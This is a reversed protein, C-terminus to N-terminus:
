APYPQKTLWSRFFPGLDRGAHQEALAIFDETSVNGGENDAVWERVLAFFAEDGLERRLAHLTAAGRYYVAFSFLDDVGPDFIPGDATEPDDAVSAAEADIDFGDETRERWLWEAYTAFGENLWLDEWAEPTVSDGFWQHALEHVRFDESLVDTGYIPRNQTELAFGVEDPVVIAGFSDFPYPGFLQELTSVMLGMDDFQEALEPEDAPFFSILPLGDPGEAEVLDLEGIAVTALYTAMPQEVAWQWTATSGDDDNAVLVGNSAAALGSPVEFTLDYTAKDSPHDNAPFWTSAGYPQSAVFAVEDNGLWGIDGLSPEAAAPAPDGAYTIAVDVEDDLSLPEPPQVVLENAGHEFTAPEGDVEVDTVELNSALDLGILDLDHEARLTVTTTGSLREAAPDWALDLGYHQVDIGTSGAGPTHHDYAQTAGEPVDSPDVDPPAEDGNSAEPDFVEASTPTSPDTAGATGATEDDSCGALSGGTLALGVVVALLRRRLM